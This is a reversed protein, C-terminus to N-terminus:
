NEDDKVKVGRRLLDEALAARHKRLNERLVSELEGPRTRVEPKTDTSILNPSKKLPSSTTFVRRELDEVPGGKAKKEENPM